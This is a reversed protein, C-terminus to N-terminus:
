VGDASIVDTLTSGPFSVPPDHGGIALLLADGRARGSRAGADFAAVGPAPPDWVTAGPLWCVRPHEVAGLLRAVLAPESAHPSPGLRRFVPDRRRRYPGGPWPNDDLVTVSLGLRAAAARGAGLDPWVTPASPPLVPSCPAISRRRPPSRCGAPVESQEPLPADARVSLRRPVRDPEPM